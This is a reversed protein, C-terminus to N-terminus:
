ISYLHRARAHGSLGSWGPFAARAAAVAEDIDATSGDVAYALLENTAPALSDSRPRDGKVWRGNIFMGLDRDHSELWARMQSDDEPAPGYAMSDFVEAVSPTSSLARSSRAPALLRPLSQRLLRSAQMMKAMLCIRGAGM